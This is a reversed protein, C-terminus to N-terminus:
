PARERNRVQPPLAARRKWEADLYTRVRAQDAEPVKLDAARKDMCELKSPTLASAWEAQDLDFAALASRMASPQTADHCHGCPKLAARADERLKPLDASPEEAAPGAVPALATLLLATRLHWM